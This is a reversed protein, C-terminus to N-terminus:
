FAQMAQMFQIVSPGAIVIVITFLLFFAPMLLNMSARRAKIESDQKKLERMKHAQIQLTESMETGLMDTQIIQAVLSDIQPLGCRTAMARLADKKSINAYIEDIARQFEKAIGTDYKECIRVVADEFGNCGPFVAALLDCFDPLESRLKEQRAEIKKKLIYDPLIFGVVTVIIVLKYNYSLLAVAGLLLAYIFRKTRHQVPDTDLGAQILKTKLPALSRGRAIREGFYRILLNEINLYIREYIPLRMKRQKETANYIKFGEMRELMIKENDPFWLEVLMVVLAVIAVFLIIKAVM